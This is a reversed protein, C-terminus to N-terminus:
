IFLCSTRHMAQQTTFPPTHSFHPLAPRAFSTAHAAKLNSSPDWSGGVFTACSATMKHEDRNANLSIIGHAVSRSPDINKIFIYVYICM